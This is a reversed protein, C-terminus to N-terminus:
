SVLYIVMSTSAVIVLTFFIKFLTRDIKDVLGECSEKRSPDNGVSNHKSIWFFLLRPVHCSNFLRVHLVCLFTFIGSVVQTSVVFISVISISTSTRPLVNSIVSLFVSYSLLITVATSVKEGSGPPILFVVPNIVATAIMPILVYIVYFAPRRKVMFDVQLFAINSIELKRTEASTIHWQGSGMERASMSTNKFYVDAKLTNEAFLFFTCNQEDFPFKSITLLCRFTIDTLLLVELSGDSSLTVHTDDTAIKPDGVVFHVSMDPYWVDSLRLNLKSLGGYNSSNWTLLSDKWQMTLWLDLKATQSEEYIEVISGYAVDASLEIPTNTYLVPRLRRDYRSSNFLDNLLNLQDNYHAGGTLNSSWSLLLLTSGIWLNM